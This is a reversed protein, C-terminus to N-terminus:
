QSAPATITYRLVATYQEYQWQAGNRFYFRGCALAEDRTAFGYGDEVNGYGCPYDAAAIVAGTDPRKVWIHAIWCQPGVTTSECTFPPPAEQAEAFTVGPLVPLISVASMTLLCALRVFTRM